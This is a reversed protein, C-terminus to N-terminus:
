NKLEGKPLDVVKATVKEVLMSGPRPPKFTTFTSKLHLSVPRTPACNYDSDNANGDDDYYYNHDSKVGNVVGNTHVAGNNYNNNYMTHNNHNNPTQYQLNMEIETPIRETRIENLGTVSFNTQLLAKRHGGSRKSPDHKGNSLNKTKANIIMCGGSPNRVMIPRPDLGSKILPENNDGCPQSGNPAGGDEEEEEELEPEEQLDEM